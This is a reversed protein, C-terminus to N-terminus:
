LPLGVLNEVVNGLINTTVVVTPRNAGSAGDAGQGSGCGALVVAASALVAALFRFPSRM